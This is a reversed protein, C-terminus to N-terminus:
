QGWHAGGAQQRSHRHHPLRHHPFGVEQEGQQGAATRRDAISQKKRRSPGIGRHRYSGRVGSMPVKHCLTGIDQLLSIYRSNPVLMRGGHRNQIVKEFDTSITEPRNKRAKSYIYSRLQMPPYGGRNTYDYKNNLLTSEQTSELQLERLFTRQNLVVRPKQRNRGM